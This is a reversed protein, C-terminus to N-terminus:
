RCTSQIHQPLFNKYQTKEYYDEIYNLLFKKESEDIYEFNLILDSIEDRYSALWDMVKRYRDENRCPGLFYRERVSEIGLNEDPVAYEADVFGCYDFDYPIPIFGTSSYEKSTVIKLNHRGTVSFDMQAIMYSFFAVRDMWEQNVTKISLRDNKIPMCNNREAMKAEPEILFAWDESEKDKRGTDIIKLKVLRTNFSYPSLLNWMKYVLYERLVYNKYTNSAKCRIVMKMKIVDSLYEAEIGAHRINIWFMPASCIRKRIEGRAKIRVDHQVEFGERVHCTMAGPLYEEKWQTKKLEKVNFKLTMTLPEEIEFLDEYVAMTDEFTPVFDDQALLPGACLLITAAFFSLKLKYRKSLIYATASKIM